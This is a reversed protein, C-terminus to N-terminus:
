PVNRSSAPNAAGRRPVVIPTDDGPAHLIHSDIGYLRQVLERTLVARPAGDAIVRGRDLAVLRDAHRAAGLDHLVMVVSRGDGALSRILELLELQHGPDLMSAPEDLLLLPTAQALVMALWARQRQGGSLQDLPRQALAALDTRRLAERLAAEDAASWRRLLSRHPHRGFAVLQEVRIGAPAQPFQPLFGLRQALAQAPLDRLDREGALVRGSDPRHLGALCRLLTSKGCGNAGVVAVVEGAAIRLGVDRLVAQAGYGAGLHEARLEMLRGGAARAAAAAM